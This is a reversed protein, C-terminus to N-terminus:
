QVGKCNVEDPTDVGHVIVDCDWQVRPDPTPPKLTWGAYFGSAAVILMMLVGTVHAFRRKRIEENSDEIIQEFEEQGWEYPDDVYLQSAYQFVPSKMARDQRRESRRQEAQTRFNYLADRLGM